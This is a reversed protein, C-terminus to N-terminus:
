TKWLGHLNCCERVADIQDKRIGFTAVPEEGPKLMRRYAQPGALVEIWQIYHTAEMPHRTAGVTVKVGDGAAEVVPLHKETGVDKTKEALLLMPEGCCICEGAGGDLVEVVIGCAKCKYVELVKTSM